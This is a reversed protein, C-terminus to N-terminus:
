FLKFPILYTRISIHIRKVWTLVNNVRSLLSPPLWGSPKSSKRNSFRPQRYRTKRNRRSRRQQRRSILKKVISQGRHELNAAWVLVWGRKGCELIVAIGTTKSGPDIKVRTDQFKPEKKQTKLIITFPFHRFIRAKKKELLERARAPHCPSLPQKDKNLVFVRNSPKHTKQPM